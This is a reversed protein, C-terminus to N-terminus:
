YYLRVSPWPNRPWTAPQPTSRDPDIQLRLRLVLFLKRKSRTELAPIGDPCEYRHTREEDLGHTSDTPDNPVHSVEELEPTEGGASANLAVTPGDNTMNNPVM